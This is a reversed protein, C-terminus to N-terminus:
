LKFRGSEIFHFTQEIVKKNQMILAHNTHLVIHDTMGAIKSSEVSVLGDDLGPLIFMSFMPLFTRDGAIVGLPFDVKGLMDHYADENTILQQGSPGYIFQYIRYKRLFDAVESGQNPPSLMVVRGVDELQYKNILGRTILGGMSHTIFHIPKKEQQIIPSLNEQIIDILEEIPFHTAPYDINLIHYGREMFYNAMKAMSRYSRGIGHFLVVYDGPDHYREDIIGTINEKKTKLRHKIRYM